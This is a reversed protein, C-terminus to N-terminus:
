SQRTNLSLLTKKEVKYVPSSTKFEESLESIEVDYIALKRTTSSMM